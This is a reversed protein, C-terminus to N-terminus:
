VPRCERCSRHHAFCSWWAADSVFNRGIMLVLKRERRMLVTTMQWYFFLFLLLLLLVPMPPPAGAPAPPAAPLNPDGGDEKHGGLGNRGLYSRGLM